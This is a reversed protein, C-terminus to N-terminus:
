GKLPFSYSVEAQDEQKGPQGKHVAGTELDEFDGYLDELLFLFLVLHWLELAQFLVLHNMKTSIQTPSVAPGLLAVDNQIENRFVFKWFLKPLM